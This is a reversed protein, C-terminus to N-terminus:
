WGGCADAFVYKYDCAPCQYLAFGGFYNYRIPKNKILKSNDIPCNFGFITQKPPEITDDNYIIRLSCAAFKDNIM